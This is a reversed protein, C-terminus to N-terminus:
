DAPPLFGILVPIPDDKKNGREWSFYKVPLIKLEPYEKLVEDPFKKGNDTAPRKGFVTTGYYNDQVFVAGYKKMDAMNIWPSFRANWEVYVAPHDKNYFATYGGIYRSGAVYKLPKHYRLQWQDSVYKVIKQAPYNDSHRHHSYVFLGAIYGGAWLFMIMYTLLLLKKINEENVAPKFILILLIGWLAVLPVGWENYLHWGFIMALVVTLLFPGLSMWIIYARGNESFFDTQQIGQASKPCLFIIIVPLLFDLLQTYAFYFPGYFHLTSFSSQLMDARNLAYKLTIINHQFLWLIHPFIIMLFVAIGAYIGPYKFSMRRSKKSVLFLALIIL